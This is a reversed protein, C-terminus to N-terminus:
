VALIKKLEFQVQAVIALERDSLLSLTV